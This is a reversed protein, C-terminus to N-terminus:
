KEAVTVLAALQGPRLEDRCGVRGVRPLGRQRAPVRAGVLAGLGGWGSSVRAGGAPAELLATGVRGGAAMVM